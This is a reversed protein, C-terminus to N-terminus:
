QPLPEVKDAIVTGDQESKLILQCAKLTQTGADNLSGPLRLPDRGQGRDVRLSPDKV